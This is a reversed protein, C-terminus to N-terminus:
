FKHNPKKRFNVCDPCDCHMPTAGCYGGNSCCYANDDDPNCTPYQGNIKPITKGCRGRKGDADNLFYWQVPVTPKIPAKTIKEPNNQYDTCTPCKCYKEGTGCYGFAGCCSYGPDDPDCVPYYGKYLPASRGCLGAKDDGDESTWWRKEDIPSCKFNVLNPDTKACLNASSIVNLLSLDDDDQELAWIMLGGVNKEAAYNKKHTLSQVNEYGLFTKTGPNFAYPSKSKEHFHKEFGNSMFSNIENWPVYGGEFKGNVAAAMRWMNDSKDVPDGVNKWYRGYFPVGMNIKHPTKSKCAYYKITWDVNTKGSFRPPMGFFLPAPPGTYAGWKSEWAGFFDYTMINAFDAYKLLGVLDYGPDLTWQGAASAFSILYKDKRGARSALGDLATRLESMFTVYNQKDAPVGENAGGTVPYEWDVDVGDFGVVQERGREDKYCLMKWYYKPVLLGTTGHSRLNVGNLSVGTVVLTARDKSNCETHRELQSWPGRNTSADQPAVNIHMNVAKRAKPSWLAVNAPTLHGRDYGTALYDADKGQHGVLHTCEHQYFSGSREYDKFQNYSMSKYKGFGYKKIEAQLYSMSWLPLKKTKDFYVIYATIYKGFGPRYLSGVQPTEMSVLSPNGSCTELVCRGDNPWVLTNREKKCTIRPDVERYSPECEYDCREGEKVKKCDEVTEDILNAWNPKPCYDDDCPKKRKTGSPGAPTKNKTSVGGRKTRKKKCDSRDEEKKKDPEDKKKDDKDRKKDKIEKKKNEVKSIGKNVERKVTSGAQKTATAAGKLGKGIAKAATGVIKGGPIVTTVLDLTGSTLLDAGKEKAKKWDGTVVAKGLDVVNKVDKVVPIDMFEKKAGKLDGTVAKGITKAVGGVTKVVTKVTDKVVGGVFDGVKKFAKKLFDFFGRKRRSTSIENTETDYTSLSTQTQENNDAFCEFS